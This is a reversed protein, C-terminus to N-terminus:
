APAREADVADIARQHMKAFLGDINADTIDYVKLNAAISAQIHAADFSGQANRYKPWKDALGTAYNAFKPTRIVALRPADENHPEPQAPPQTDKPPWIAGDCAKDKCKFDPAKPNKKGERNDWMPGGCKPCTPTDSAPAKRQAVHDASDPGTGNGDDDKDAYVGFMASLGYRRLYTIAKGMVQALSLGKEGEIALTLTSRLWQGSAHMIITDVSVKEGDFSPMQTFSIGHKATAPRIAEIISGLDAYNNKLFPNKANMEAAKMEAQAAAMATALDSISESAYM